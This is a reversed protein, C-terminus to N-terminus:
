GGGMIDIRQGRLTEIFVSFISTATGSAVDEQYPETTAAEVSGRSDAPWMYHPMHVISLHRSLPQTCM